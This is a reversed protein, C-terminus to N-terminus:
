STDLFSRNTMCKTYVLYAHLKCKKTISHSLHSIFYKKEIKIVHVNPPNKGADLTPHFILFDVM